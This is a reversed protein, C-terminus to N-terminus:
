LGMLSGPSGPTKGPLQSEQHGPSDDDDGDAHRGGDTSPLSSNIVDRELPVMNSCDKLLLCGITQVLIQHSLLGVM